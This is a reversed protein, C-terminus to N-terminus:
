NKGVNTFFCVNKGFFNVFFVVIKMNKRGFIWFNWFGWRSYGKRIQKQKQGLIRFFMCKKWFFLFDWKQGLKLLVLIKQWFFWIKEKTRLLLVYFISMPWILACLSFKLCNGHFDKSVSINAIKDKQGSYTM